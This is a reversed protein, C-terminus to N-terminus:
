ETSGLIVRVRVGLGPAARPTATGPAPLSHRSGGCQRPQGADSIDRAHGGGFRPLERGALPDHDDARADHAVADGIVERLQALGLDGQQVLARQGVRAAGGSVRGVEDERDIVGLLHRRQGLLAHALVLLEVDIELAAPDLDRPGLRTHLLEVPAHHRGLRPPDRRGREDARGLDLLQDREDVLRQQQAAEVGRARAHHVRQPRRRDHALPGLLGPRRHGGVGLHHPKVDLVAADAPHAGIAAVDLGVAHDDGAAAPTGRM